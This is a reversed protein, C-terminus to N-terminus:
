SDPSTNPPAHPNLSPKELGNPFLVLKLSRNFLTRLPHVLRPVNTPLEKPTKPIDGNKTRFM